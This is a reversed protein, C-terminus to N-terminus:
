IEAAGPPANRAIKRHDPGTKDGLGSGPGGNAGPLMEPAPPSTFGAVPSGSTPSTPRTLGPALKM